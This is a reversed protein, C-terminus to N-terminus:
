GVVIELSKGKHSAQISSMMAVKSALLSSLLARHSQREIVIHLLALRVACEYIKLVITDFVLYVELLHSSNYAHLRNTVTTLTVQVSVGRRLSEGSLFFKSGM